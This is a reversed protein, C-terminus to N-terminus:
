SPQYCNKKQLVMTILDLVRGCDDVVVVEVSLRGCGWAGVGV